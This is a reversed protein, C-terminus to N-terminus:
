NGKSRALRTTDELDNVNVLFSLLFTYYWQKGLLGELVDVSQGVVVTSSQRWGFLLSGM